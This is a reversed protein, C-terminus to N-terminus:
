CIDHCVIIKVVDWAPQGWYLIAAICMAAGIAPLVVKNPWDFPERKTM